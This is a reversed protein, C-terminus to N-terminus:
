GEVPTPEGVDVGVGVLDTREEHLHTVRELEDETLEGSVYLRRAERPSLDAPDDVGGVTETGATQIRALLPGALAGAVPVLALWPDASLSWILPAASAAAVTVLRGNRGAETNSDLM